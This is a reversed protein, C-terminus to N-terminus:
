VVLFHVSGGAGLGGRRTGNKTELIARNTMTIPGNTVFDPSQIKPTDFKQTVKYDLRYSHLNLYNNM